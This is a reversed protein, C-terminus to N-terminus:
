SQSWTISNLIIVLYCVGVELITVHIKPSSIQSESRVNLTAIYKVKFNLLRLDLFFAWKSM